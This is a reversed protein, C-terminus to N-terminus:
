ISLYTLVICGCVKFYSIVPVVGFEELVNGRYSAILARGVGGLIKGM